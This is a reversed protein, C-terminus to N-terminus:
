CIHNVFPITKEEFIESITAFDHIFCFGFIAEIKNGSAMPDFGENGKIFQKIIESGAEGYGVARVVGKSTVTAVKTNSSTYTIYNDVNAASPM